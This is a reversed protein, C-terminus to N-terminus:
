LRSLRRDQDEETEYSEELTRLVAEVLDDAEQDGDVYARIWSQQVPDELVQAFEAVLENKSM